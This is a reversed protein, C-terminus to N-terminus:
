GASSSPDVDRKLGRMSHPTVAKLATPQSTQVDVQEGLGYGASVDSLASVRDAEVSQAIVPATVENVVACLATCVASIAFLIFATKLYRTM